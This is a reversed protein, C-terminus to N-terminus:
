RIPNDYTMFDSSIKFNSINTPDISGVGGIINNLNSFNGYGSLGANVSSSVPPPTPM